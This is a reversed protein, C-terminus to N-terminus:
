FRYPFQMIIAKSIMDSMELAEAVIKDFVEINLKYNKQIMTVAENKTLALHSYFM